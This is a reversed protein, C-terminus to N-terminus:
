PVPNLTDGLTDPPSNVPGNQDPIPLPSPFPLTATGESGSGNGATITVIMSIFLAVVAFRPVTASCVDPIHM